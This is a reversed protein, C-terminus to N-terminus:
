YIVMGHLEEIDVIESDGIDIESILNKLRKQNEPEKFEKFIVDSFSNQNRLMVAIRTLNKGDCLVLTFYRADEM